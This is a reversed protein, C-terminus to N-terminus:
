SKAAEALQKELEAIRADREATAKAVAEDIVEAPPAQRQAQVGKPKRNTKKLGDALDSEPWHKPVSGVENDDGDVVAVFDSEKLIHRGTETSKNEAM